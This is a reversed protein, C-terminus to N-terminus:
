NEPIIVSLRDGVVSLSDANEIGRGVVIVIKASIPVRAGPTLEKNNYKIALVLDKYESEVRKEEINDIGLGKLTSAAQRYSGNWIIAPLSIQRPSFANITLYVKRDPKIETGSKPIQDVITGPKGTSNYVSDSLDGILDHSKLIQRAESYYMGKVDPVIRVDGHGTWSDLFLLALNVLIIAVIIILCFHTLIPHNKIFTKIKDIKSDKKM